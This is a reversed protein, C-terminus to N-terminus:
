TTEYPQPQLIVADEDDSDIDVENVDKVQYLTKLQYAEFLVNIYSEEQKGEYLGVETDDEPPAIFPNKKSLFEKARM